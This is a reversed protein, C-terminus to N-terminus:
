NTGNDSQKTGNKDWKPGFLTNRAGNLVHNRLLRRIPCVSHKKVCNQGMELYKTGNALFM